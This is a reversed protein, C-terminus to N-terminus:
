FNGNIIYNRRSTLLSNIDSVLQTGSLKSDGEAVIQGNQIAM